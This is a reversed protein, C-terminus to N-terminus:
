SLSPHGLRLHAVDISAIADPSKAYGSGYRAPHRAYSEGRREPAPSPPLRHLSPQLCPRKQIGKGTTVYANTCVRLKNADSVSAGKRLDLGGDFKDFTISAM